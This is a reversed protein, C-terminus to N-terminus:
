QKIIKTTATADGRGALRIMYLGSPLLSGRTFTIQNRGKSAKYVEHYVPNGTHDMLEFKLVDECNAEVEITFADKFQMPDIYTITLLQHPAVSLTVQVEDKSIVKSSEDLCSVRYSVQEGEAEYDTFRYTHMDVLVEEKPVRQVLIWDTGNQIREITFYSGQPFEGEWKLVPANDAITVDVVLDAQKVNTISHDAVSVNGKDFAKAEEQQIMYYLISATIVLIVSIGTLIYRQRIGQRIGQRLTIARNGSSDNTKM